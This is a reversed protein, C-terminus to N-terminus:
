SDEIVENLSWQHLKKILQTIFCSLFQIKVIKFFCGAEPMYNVGTYPYAKENKTLFLVAETKISAIYVKM